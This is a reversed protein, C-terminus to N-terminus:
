PARAPPHLNPSWTRLISPFRAGFPGSGGSIARLENQHESTGAVWLERGAALTPPQWWGTGVSATVAALVPQVTPAPRSTPSIPKSKPSQERAQNGSILRRISGMLDHRHRTNKVTLISFATWRM